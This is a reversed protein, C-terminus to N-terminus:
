RHRRRFSLTRAEYVAATEAGIMIVISSYYIWLMLVIVTGLSGYV